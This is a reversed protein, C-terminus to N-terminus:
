RRKGKKEKSRGYSSNKDEKRYEGNRETGTRIWQRM